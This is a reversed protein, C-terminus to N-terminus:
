SEGIRYGAERVTEILPPNGLKARLRGITTKVTTTFPDTAEDWVEGLLQEASIPQGQAALLRELVALEKPTLTLRRGARSATRGSPDLSLDGYELRPAPAAPRRAVARIRAVLEVFEFPKSLYDDAGLELGDVRDKLSSAATLMLIRSTSGETVLARCIEDGHTGPLDRDLVVVDYSNVRVQAVVNDGDLVIDVAMGERRLGLAVAEALVKDDEAILVRM